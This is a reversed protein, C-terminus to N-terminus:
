ALQALLVQKLSGGQLAQGRFGGAQALVRFGQGALLARLEQPFFQRLALSLDRSAGDPGGLRWTQTLVQSAPDYASREAQVRWGPSALPGEEVGFWEEPDRALLAPQPLHVDLAFRAGPDLHERLCAFFADLDAASHLHQLGNYPLLALAFRRGLHFDRLDAQAWDVRAGEAQARLRALDLMPRSSDLGCVDAGARALALAVRGAGTALDLVPGKAAQALGLYYPLDDGPAGLLGEYEQPVQYLGDVDSKPM